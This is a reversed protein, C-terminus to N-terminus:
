DTTPTAPPMVGSPSRRKTARKNCISSPRTSANACVRRVSGSPRWRRRWRWPSLSVSSRRPLPRMWARAELDWAVILASIFTRGIAVTVHAVPRVGWMPLRWAVAAGVARSSVSSCREGAAGRSGAEPSATAAYRREALSAEYRAQQLDLEAAHQRERLSEERKREAELSAELAMPEVVRLIEAAIAEDVRAGGFGLCRNLGLHLNPRDCRYRPRGPSGGVYAVALGRGCRGCTLLGILLARGGRGSKRGGSKGYSNAALQAQNREFEAWDIYGEHHDKLLVEWEEMPKAHGYTKRVHGDVIETRSENKGYAYAGAYFPNKLVSIVNGYRIPTWDFSVMTSGDSPRPFCLQEATLALLAQRASGLDRFRAFIQRVAEQVRLDPDLDLGSDRDWIYGVPVGIRLEGRAAKSSRADHMRARLVGLEFESIQGKMGLLLRDNPHRPDYVGDHDIVRAGVLGCLELIHHWDRGNRAVRSAEFCLVAGVDGACLWAVLREFGPRAVTGGASLGLDEDIIEVAGFGHHRAIDVLDYQRRQSELNGRVQAPTSQRVYVVAKRSLVSGPLSDSTRM